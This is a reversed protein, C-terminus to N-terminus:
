KIMENKRSALKQKPTRCYFARCSNRHAQYVRHRDEGNKEYLRM